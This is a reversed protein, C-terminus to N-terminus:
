QARSHNLRHGGFGRDTAQDEVASNWWRDYHSVHNAQTLNLGVGGAKLSLIFILAHDGAALVEEIREGMRELKGSRDSIPSGDKLFNLPHNCIQKLKMRITPLWTGHLIITM